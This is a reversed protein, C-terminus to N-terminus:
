KGKKMPDKPPSSSKARMSIELESQMCRRNWDCTKPFNCKEYQCKPSSKEEDRSKKINKQMALTLNELSDEENSL